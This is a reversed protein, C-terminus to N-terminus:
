RATTFGLGIAQFGFGLFMWGGLEAGARWTEGIGVFDGGAEPADAGLLESTAREEEGEEHEGAGGDVDIDEKPSFPLPPPHRLLGPTWPSFVVAALGFRALNTMGPSLDSQLILKIVAHQTGWLVTVANLLFLDRMAGDPLPVSTSSKSPYSAIFTTESATTSLEVTVVDHDNGDDRDDGDDTSLALEPKVELAADDRAICLAKRRKRSLVAHRNAAFPRATTPQQVHSISPSPHVGIPKCYAGCPHTVFGAALRLTGLLLIDPLQM